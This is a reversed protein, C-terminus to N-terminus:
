GCRDVLKEGTCVVHFVSSRRHECGGPDGRRRIQNGAPMKTQDVDFHIGLTIAQEHEIIWVRYARSEFSFEKM